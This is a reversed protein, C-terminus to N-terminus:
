VSPEATPPPRHERCYRRSFQPIEISGLMYGLLGGWLSVHDDVEVVAPRDCLFCTLAVGNQDRLLDPANNQERIAAPTVGRTALEAEIVLVADPDMGGRYVTVRNILDESTAKLVNERVRDLEVKTM